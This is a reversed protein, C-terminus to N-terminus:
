ILIIHFSKALNHFYETVYLDFKILPGNMILNYALILFILNGIIFMVFGIIPKEGLLGSSRLGKVKQKDM